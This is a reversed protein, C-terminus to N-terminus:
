RQSFCTEQVIDPLPIYEAIHVLSSRQGHEGFRRLSTQCQSLFRALPIAQDMFVLREVLGTDNVDCHSRTEFSIDLDCWDLSLTM